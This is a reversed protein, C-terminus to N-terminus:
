FGFTAGAGFINDNTLEDTSLTAKLTLADVRHVVGIAIGVTGRYNAVGIGIGTNAGHVDPIQAMAALGAMGGVLRDNAFRNDNLLESYQDAGLADAGDVGDVGDRGDVGDAGAPGTAGTEGVPGQPGMPGVEGQPGAPGVPGPILEINTIEGDVYAEMCDYSVGSSGDRCTGALAQGSFLMAAAIAIIYKKM